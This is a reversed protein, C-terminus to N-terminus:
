VGWICLLGRQLNFHGCCCVVPLVAEQLQVQVQHQAARAKEAGSGCAKVWFLGMCLGSSSLDLSLKHIWFWSELQMHLNFHRCCCVVPLVAEQLEVQHQATGAEEAESGCAKVWFLGKCLGSSNLDLSHKHVWFGSELQM